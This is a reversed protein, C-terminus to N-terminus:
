SFLIAACFGGSPLVEDMDEVEEDIDDGFGTGL